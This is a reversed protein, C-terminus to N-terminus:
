LVESVLKINCDRAIFPYGNEPTYGIINYIYQRIIEGDTFQVWQEGIVEVKDGWMTTYGIVPKEYMEKSIIIMDEM